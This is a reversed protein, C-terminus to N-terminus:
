LMFFSMLSHLTPEHRDPDRECEIQSSVEANNWNAAGVLLMLLLRSDIYFRIYARNGIAVGVERDFAFSYKLDDGRMSGGSGQRRIVLELDVAPFLNLRQQHRWLSGRARDLLRTWPIEFDEPIAIREFALPRSGLAMAYSLRDAHTYRRFPAKPNEQVDGTKCEIIDGTALHHLQVGPPGKVRWRAEVEAPTAQHLYECYKALRGGTVHSGAVPVAVKPRLTGAVSCFLDLRSFKVRDRLEAKKASDYAPFAHPFGSAGSYPLLALDPSGFKKALRDGDDPSVVNDVAHFLQEGNADRVWISTDLAYHTEDVYGDGSTGFSSVICVKADTVEVFEDLPMERIDTFGIGAMSRRLHNHGLRGIIIPTERSYAALAVRDLHDPHLHSVYIFDPKLARYRQLSEASLPPFNYWSGYYAGDTMWPDVLITRGSRLTIVCGANAIFELRM